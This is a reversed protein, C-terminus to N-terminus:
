LLKKLSYYINLGKEGSKEPHFQFGFLNENQISSCFRNNNYFTETLIVKESEPKCVYSHVFYFYENKEIKSFVNESNYCIVKSWGINPIKQGKQKRLKVVNGELIGLGKCLNFETSKEFLLQMGLCIGFLKKKRDNIFIKIQNILGMKKLPAYANLPGRAPEQKYAM